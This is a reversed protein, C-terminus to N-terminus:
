FMSSKFFSKKSSTESLFEVVTMLCLILSPLEFIFKPFSEYIVYDGVFVNLILMLEFTIFLGKEFSWLSSFLLSALM